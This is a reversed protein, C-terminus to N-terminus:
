LIAPAFRLDYPDVIAEFIDALLKQFPSLFAVDRDLMDLRALRM